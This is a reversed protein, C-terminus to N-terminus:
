HILYLLPFLYIWILDVLHWYLGTCDVPEFYESSFHGKRARILIWTLVGIGIIVHLGHLGTMVFYIGLFSRINAFRRKLEAESMKGEQHAGSEEASAVSVDNEENSPPANDGDNAAAKEDRDTDEGNGATHDSNGEAHDGTEESHNGNQPTHEGDQETGHGAGHGGRTLVEEIYHLSKESPVGGAPPGQKERAVADEFYQGSLFYVIRDQGPVLHHDWKSKYEIFKIVLFGCACAITVALLTTLAKQHNCQAARVALAMTLSSFILVVTNIAGWSTELLLHGDMFVEPNNRRLVAYAVFLGSFFLIETVLFIWMGLKASTFQQQPTDFHHALWPSHGHDDDGHDNDHSAQTTETM